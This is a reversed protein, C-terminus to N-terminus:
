ILGERWATKATMNGTIASARAYVSVAFPGATRCNRAVAATEKPLRVGIILGACYAVAGFGHGAGGASVGCRGSLRSFRRRGEGEPFARSSRGSPYTCRALCLQDQKQM